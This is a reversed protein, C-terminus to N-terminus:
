FFFGGALAQVHRVMAAFSRRHAHVKGCEALDVVRITLNGHEEFYM